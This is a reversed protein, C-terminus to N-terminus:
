EFPTTDLGGLDASGGSILDKGEFLSDDTPKRIMSSYHYISSYNVLSYLDDLVWPVIYTKSCFILVCVLETAVFKRVEGPLHMLVRAFRGLWLPSPRFIPYVPHVRLKQCPLSCSSAASKPHNLPITWVKPSATAASQSFHGTVAPLRLSPSDVM